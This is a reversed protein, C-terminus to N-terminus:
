LVTVYNGTVTNYEHMSNNWESVFNGGFRDDRITEAGMRSPELPPKGIGGFVFLCEGHAVMGGYSRESPCDRKSLGKWTFDVLDLRHLDKRYDEDDLGGFVYLHDGILASCAGKGFVPYSDGSTPETKEWRMTDLNYIEVDREESDTDSISIM